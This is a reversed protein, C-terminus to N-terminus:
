LRIKGKLYAALEAFESKEKTWITWNWYPNDGGRKLTISGMTYNFATVNRYNFVQCSFGYGLGVGCCLLSQDTCVILCGGDM